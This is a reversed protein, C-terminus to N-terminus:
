IDLATYLKQTLQGLEAYIPSEGQNLFKDRSWKLARKTERRIAKTSERSLGENILQDNFTAVIPSHFAPDRINDLARVDLRGDYSCTTLSYVMMDQLASTSARGKRENTAQRTICLNPLENLLEDRYYAVIGNRDESNLFQCTFAAFQLEGIHEVECAAPNPLTTSNPDYLDRDGDRAMLRGFMRNRLNPQRFFKPDINNVRPDHATMCYAYDPRTVRRYCPSNDRM